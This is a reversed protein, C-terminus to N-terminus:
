AGRGRQMSSHGCMPLAQNLYSVPCWLGTGPCHLPGDLGRLLANRGMSAPKSGSVMHCTIGVSVPSWACHRERPPIPGRQCSLAPHPAALQLCQATVFHAPLPCQLGPCALGLDERGVDTRHHLCGGGVSGRGEEHRHM